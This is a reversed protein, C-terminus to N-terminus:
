PKKKNSNSNNTNSPPPKPKEIIKPHEKPPRNDNNNKQAFAGATVLTALVIAVLVALLIPKLKKMVARRRADKEGVCQPSASLQAVGVQAFGIGFRWRNRYQSAGYRGHVGLGECKDEFPGRSISTRIV